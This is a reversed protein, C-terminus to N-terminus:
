DEIITNKINSIVDAIKEKDPTLNNYKDLLGACDFEDIRNDWNNNLDEATSIMSNFGDKFEQLEEDTLVAKYDSVKQITTEKDEDTVNAWEILKMASQVARLSCGASGYDIHMVSELVDTLDISDQCETRAETTVEDQKDSTSETECSSLIFMAAVGLIVFKNVKMFVDEKM